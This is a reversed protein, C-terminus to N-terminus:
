QPYKGRIEKIVMLLDDSELNKERRLYDKQRGLYELVRVIEGDSVRIKGELIDRALWYAKRAHVMKRDDADQCLREIIEIPDM